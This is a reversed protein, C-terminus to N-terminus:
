GEKAFASDRVPITFYFTTGKGPESQLWIKGGMLKVLNESIALGLGTGGFRRTLTNDLQRFHEFVYKQDKKSIGIGSDRVYFLIKGDELLRYGFQIFGKPTFKIANVLLNILVQRIRYPDMEVECNDDSFETELFILLHEKGRNIKENQVVEEIERLHQNLNFESKVVQLQGSEIKSIDIIDNILKILQNSNQSIHLFYKHKESDTLDDELIINAFGVIANLPTRIEHSMNALFASKLRDSQEAERKATELLKASKKQQTIDTGILLYKSTLDDAQNLTYLRLYIDQHQNESKRSIEGEWQQGEVLMKALSEQTGGTYKENELLFDLSQGVYQSPDTLLIESSKPNIFQIIFGENLSVVLDPFAHALALFESENKKTKALRVRYRRIVIALLGITLILFGIIIFSLLNSM